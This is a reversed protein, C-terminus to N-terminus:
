IPDQYGWLRACLWHENWIGDIRHFNEWNFGQSVDRIHWRASIDQRTDRLYEREVYMSYIILMYNIIQLLSLPQRQQTGVMHWASSISTTGLRLSNAIHYLILCTFVIIFWHPLHSLLFASYQSCLFLLGKRLSSQNAFNRPPVLTKFSPCVLSPQPCDLYFM